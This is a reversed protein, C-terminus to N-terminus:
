DKIRQANFIVILSSLMMALSSLLPTLMGFVALCIGVINYFFAWFLNQKIIKQGKRAVRLIAPLVSLRDTTLMIDSAQISLDTATAVSIGTTAGALAAADNIGDGMMTINKGEKRLRDIFDRKELPSVEAKWYTFNCLSAVTKVAAESDGSLLFAPTPSLEDIVEAAENRIQDGLRIKALLKGKSCFYVDTLIAEHAQSPLSPEALEFGQLRMFEKSGLYFTLTQFKAKMGRGQIEEVEIDSAEKLPIARFISASIPHLSRRAIAKLVMLERQSLTELGSIVRFAGETITGTKDFVFLDEQGLYKLCGRSRVIAGLNALVNLIRSEAIPAAIGIACPCSILLISVARLFIHQPSNGQMWLITSTILAILIVAPIFRQVIPDIARSYHSKEGIDSEITEIIHFLTTEKECANVRYELRGQSLVTGALVPDGTQKKLPFAEGTMLSEDVNGVGATVIGDLVIKEGTLAVLCDGKGIEKVLKFIESGDPMKKRGRKPIAKILRTLTEKASFKAKSEIIKGLLVFTIIVSMSDFYVHNGGSLLESISMIFASGIGIVILTEMGVFGFSISTAFRQLIPWASYFLVPLSALFSAWAFLHSQSFLDASFYSAYIPYSFMMINLSFFAAIILRLNLKLDSPTGKEDGVIVPSYGFKQILNLIREKSAIKPFYEISSLDTSYDVSCNAVGKEKLLVFRIIEACSPCWMNQIELHIRCRENKSFDLNKSHIENLFDPNSILGTRAAQLFLPHNEFNELESRHSLIQFVAECGFCCFLAEECKISAQRAPRGCLKCIPNIKVESQNSLAM